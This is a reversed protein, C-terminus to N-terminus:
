ESDEAFMRLSQMISFHVSWFIALCVLMGATFGIVLGLVLQESM